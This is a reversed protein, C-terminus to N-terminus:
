WVERGVASGLDQERHRNKATVGDLLGELEYRRRGLPRIELAGDAIPQARVRDLARHDVPNRIVVAGSRHM